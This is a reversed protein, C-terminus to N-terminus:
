VFLATIRVKTSSLEDSGTAPFDMDFVVKKLIERTRGPFELDLDAAVPRESKTKLSKKILSNTKSPKLEGDDLKSRSFSVDDELGLLIRDAPSLDVLQCERKVKKWGRLGRAELVAIKNTLYGLLKAKGKTKKVKSKTFPESLNSPSYLKHSVLITGNIKFNADFARLFVERKKLTRSEQGAM